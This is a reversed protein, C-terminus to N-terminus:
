ERFREILKPLSTRLLPNQALQRDREEVILKCEKLGVYPKLFERLHKIANIKKGEGLYRDVGMMIALHSMEILKNWAKEAIDWQYGERFSEDVLKTKLISYHQMVYTGGNLYGQLVLAQGLAEAESNAQVHGSALFTDGNDAYKYQVCVFYNDM